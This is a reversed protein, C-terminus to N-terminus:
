YEGRNAVYLRLLDYFKGRESERLKRSAALGAVHRHLEELHAETFDHLGDSDDILELILERNFIQAARLVEACILPSSSSLLSSPSADPLREMVARLVTCFAAVMEGACFYFDYGRRREWSAIADCASKFEKVTLATWPEASFKPMQPLSAHPRSWRGMEDAAFRLVDLDAKLPNKYATTIDARTIRPAAQCIARADQETPAPVDREADWMIAAALIHKCITDGSEAYPCDCAYKPSGIKKFGLKVEYGHTGKVVACCAANSRQVIRTIQPRCYEQAREYIKYEVDSLLIRSFSFAM